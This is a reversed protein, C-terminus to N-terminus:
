KGRHLAPFDIGRLRAFECFALDWEACGIPWTHLKRAADVSAGDYSRPFSEVYTAIDLVYSVIDRKGGSVKRRDAIFSHVRFRDAPSVQRAM